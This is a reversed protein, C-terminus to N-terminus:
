FPIDSLEDFTIPERDDPFDDGCFMDWFECEASHWGAMHIRRWLKTDHSLYVSVVGEYKSEWYGYFLVHLKNPDLRWLWHTYECYKIFVAKAREPTEAIVAEWVVGDIPERHNEGDVDWSFEQWGANVIYVGMKAM